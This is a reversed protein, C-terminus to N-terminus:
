TRAEARGARTPDNGSSRRASWLILLLAFVLTPVARSLQADPTLAREIDTMGSFGVADNTLGHVMIAPILSGGLRNMFWAAVISVSFTGLTFAPLYLFLYTVIGLRDIVGTIVDRPVHWLSWVVGVILAARVPGELLDELLPQAYGRWGGEELVAGQDLLAAFALALLLNWSWLNEPRVFEGPAIWNRIWFSVILCALVGVVLLTYIALHAAGAENSSGVPRWRRLFARWESADRGVALVVLAALTPVASGVLMIWLGPEAIALRTVDWLNSTWPIGTAQSARGALRGFDM